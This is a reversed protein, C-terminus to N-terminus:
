VQIKRLSINFSPSALVMFRVRLLHQVQIHDNNDIAATTFVNKRLSPPCVVKHEQYQLLIYNGLVTSLELVRTYFISLGLSSLCQAIGKNRTKAHILM